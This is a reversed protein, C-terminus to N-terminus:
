RKVEEGSRFEVFVKPKSLSVANVLHTLQTIASNRASDILSEDEALKETARIKLENTSNIAAEYGAESSGTWGHRQYENRKEIEGIPNFELEPQDLLIHLGDTKLDIEATELNVTFVANYKMSILAAYDPNNKDGVTLVDSYTGSAIFVELKKVEQIKGSLEATTDEASLGQEKGAEYGERQGVTLGELSGVARGVLTGTEEGLMSGTSQANLRFKIIFALALTLATILCVILIYLPAKMISKKM